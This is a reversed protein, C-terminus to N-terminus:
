CVIEGFACCPDGITDDCTRVPPEPTPKPAPVAATARPEAVPPPARRTLVMRPGPEAPESVGAASMESAPAEPVPAATATALDAFSRTDARMGPREASSWAFAIFLWGTVLLAMFAGLRGRRGHDAAVRQEEIDHVLALERMRSAHDAQIRACAAQAAARGARRARREAEAQRVAEREAKEAEARAREARRRRNEAVLAQVRATRAAHLHADAEDRARKRGLDTLHHLSSLLSTNTRNM